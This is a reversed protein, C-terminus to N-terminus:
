RALWEDIAAARESLRAASVPGVTKLEQAYLSVRYEEIWLRLEDLDPPRRLEESAQEELSRYRVAWARLEALVQPPESGRALARQWRREEGRLYRAVQRLWDDPLARLFGADLVRALHERAEQAAETMPKCQRPDDLLRRVERAQAFWGAVTAVIEELSSYLHARGRDLAAEFAARARPVEGEGFCARRFVLQLLTEVLADRSFYPVASLLLQADGGIRRELDRAQSGLILRALSVAGERFSRTAEAPSWEFRVELGGSARVLTPHVLL